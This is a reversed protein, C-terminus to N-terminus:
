QVGSGTGPDFRCVAWLESRIYRADGVVSELKKNLAALIRLFDARNMHRSGTNLRTHPAVINTHHGMLFVLMEFEQDNLQIERGRVTVRRFSLDIRFDGKAVVGHEQSEASWTAPREVKGLHNGLKSISSISAM